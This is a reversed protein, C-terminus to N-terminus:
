WQMDFQREHDVTSKISAFVKVTGNAVLNKKRIINEISLKTSEGSLILKFKGHILKRRFLISEAQEYYPRYLLWKQIDRDATRPPVYIGGSTHDSFTEKKNKGFNTSLTVSM